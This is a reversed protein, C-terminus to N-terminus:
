ENLMKELTGNELMPIVGHWDEPGDNCGGIYKGNVWVSPASSVGTITKLEIRYKEIPVLMYPINYDQLKAEAIRCYPCSSLDFLVVQYQQLLYDLSM